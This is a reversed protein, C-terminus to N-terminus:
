VISKGEWDSDPYIGMVACITPALDLLSLKEKIEGKEFSEGIFFFPITMDEPIDLGHTRDHGGHDAMIVVHYEDGYAEIIRKVNDIAISIRKLYEKIADTFFQEKIKGVCVINIKMVLIYYKKTQKAIM